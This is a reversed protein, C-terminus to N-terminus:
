PKVFTVSANHGGFGFSDCIAATLDM